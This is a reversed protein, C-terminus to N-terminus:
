IIKECFCKSCPIKYKKYYSLLFEIDLKDLFVYLFKFVKENLLIYSLSLIFFLPHLFDCAWRHPWLTTEKGMTGRSITGM